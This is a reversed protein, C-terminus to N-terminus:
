RGPVAGQGCCRCRFPLRMILWFAKCYAEEDRLFEERNCADNFSFCMRNLAYGRM